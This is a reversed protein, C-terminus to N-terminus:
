GRASARSSCPSTSRGPWPRGCEDALAAPRSPVDAEISRGMVPVGGMSAVLRAQETARRHATIGIRAGNMSVIPDRGRRLDVRRAGRRAGGRRAAGDGDMIGTALDIRRDASM